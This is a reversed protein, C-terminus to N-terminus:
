PLIEITGRYVYTAPGILRLSVFRQEPGNEAEVSLSGGRTLVSVPAHVLGRAVASLAAAVVGSGCSLTEAEVGREYTRMRIGAGYSQVYNVNTGGPGFRSTHRRPPADVVLDVAEVDDVWVLLHPSGTNIFDEYKGGRDHDSRKVAPLTIAVEDGSWTGEHVGDIATFSADTVGGNLSSWFAFACRSGNGCFSKSGDPNFFEMHFDTGHMHPSRLAILGDSGIGSHRDCLRRILATDDVPLLGDRDDVLIFDNGTGHWKAFQLQM